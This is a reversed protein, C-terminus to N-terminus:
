NYFIKIVYFYIGKFYKEKFLVNVLEFFENGYFLIEIRICKSGKRIDM